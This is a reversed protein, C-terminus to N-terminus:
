GDQWSDASHQYASPARLGFTERSAPYSLPPCRLLQNAPKEMDCAGSNSRPLHTSSRTKGGGLIHSLFSEGLTVGYQLSQALLSSFPFYTLIELFFSSAGSTIKKLQLSSLLPPPKYSSWAPQHQSLLTLRSSLVSHILPHAWAPWRLQRAYPNPQSGRPKQGHLPCSNGSLFVTQPWPEPHSSNPTLLPFPQPPPMFLSFPATPSIDLIALAGPEDTSRVLVDQNVLILHSKPHM